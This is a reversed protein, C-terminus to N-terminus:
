EEGEYYDVSKGSLFERSPIPVGWKKSDPYHFCEGVPNDAIVYILLDDESSNILQHNEGPKFLFADGPGIESVGNDHRVKGRGAIVHYFEWQASHSHFPYPTEGAPIRLIEVDFPHRKEADLSKPDRGLAESIGKGFGKFKGKPSQWGYEELKDTNIIKM